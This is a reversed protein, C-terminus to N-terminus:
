VQVIWRAQQPHAHFCGFHKMCQEGLIASGLLISEGKFTYSNKLKEIFIKKDM